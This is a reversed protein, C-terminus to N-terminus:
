HSSLQGAEDPRDALALHGCALHGVPAPGRGLCPKADGLVRTGGTRSVVRAGQRLRSPSPESGHPEPKASERMDPHNGNDSKLGEATTRVLRDILKEYKVFPEM